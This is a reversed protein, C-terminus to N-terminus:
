DYFVERLKQKYDKKNISVFPKYKRIKMSIGQWLPDKLVKDWQVIYGLCIDLIMMSETCVMGRIHMKLLEPHGHSCDFLQDFTCGGQDMYNKLTEMEDRFTYNISQWTKSWKAWNSKGNNKIDGIWVKSTDSSAVFSSLLYERIEDDNLKKALTEFFYFDARQKYKDESARTKGNYKFFDFNETTFHKKTALYTRYVDYGHM